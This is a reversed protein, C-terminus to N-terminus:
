NAVRRLILLYNGRDTAMAEPRQRERNSVCWRLVDGELQFIGQYHRGHNPGETADADLQGSRGDGTMTFTGGGLGGPPARNTGVERGAIRNGTITLEIEMHGTNTNEGRGDV